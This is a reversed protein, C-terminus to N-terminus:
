AVPPFMSGVTALRFGGCTRCCRPEGPNHCMRNAAASIGRGFDVADMEDWGGETFPRCLTTAALLMGAQGFQAQMNGSM